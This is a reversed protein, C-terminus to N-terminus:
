AVAITRTMGSLKTPLLSQLKRRPPYGERAEDDERCERERRRRSGGLSAEGFLLRGPREEPVRLDGVPQVPIGGLPDDLVRGVGLLPM